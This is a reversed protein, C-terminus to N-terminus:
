HYPSWRSRCTVTNTPLTLHTYSVTLLTPLVASGVDNLADEVAHWDIRAVNPHHEAGTQATATSPPM